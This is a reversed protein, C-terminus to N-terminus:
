QEVCNEKALATSPNHIAHFFHIFEKQPESKASATVAPAATKTHPFTFPRGSQHPKPNTKWKELTVVTVVTKYTKLKIYPVVTTALERLM